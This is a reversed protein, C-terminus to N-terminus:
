ALAQPIARLSLFSLCDGLNLYRISCTLSGVSAVCDALLDTLMM